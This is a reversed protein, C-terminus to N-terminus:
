HISISFLQKGYSSALLLYRVVANGYVTLISKARSLRPLTFGLIQDCSIRRYSDTTRSGFSFHAVVTHGALRHVVVDVDVTFM